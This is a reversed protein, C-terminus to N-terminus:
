SKQKSLYPSFVLNTFNALDIKVADAFEVVDYTNTLLYYMGFSVDDTPHTVHLTTVSKLQHHLNSFEVWPSTSWNERNYTLRCTICIM